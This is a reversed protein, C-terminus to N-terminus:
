KVVEPVALGVLEGVSGHGLRTLLVDLEREVTRFVAPGSGAVASGMQVARAGAMLYEAVDRGTGIGGVGVIDISDGLARRVEWVCRLAVPKLAPGGMGGMGNALVPMKAEVSIVMSKLTNTLVVAGAGADRATRAVEVMNPLTPSLKVWVPVGVAKCVAATIEGVKGTDAGLELGTKEAHPCSLNLEVARCGAREMRVALSAYERADKGFVSGMVPGGGKMDALEKVYADIGPNPLGMANITGVEL